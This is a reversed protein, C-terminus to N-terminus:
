RVNQLFLNRKKLGAISADATEAGAFIIQTAKFAPWSLQGSHLSYARSSECMTGGDTISLSQSNHGVFHTACSKQSYYSGQEAKWLRNQKRTLLGAQDQLRSVNRLLTSLGRTWSGCTGETANAPEKCHQTATAVTKVDEVSNVTLFYKPSFFLFLQQHRQLM